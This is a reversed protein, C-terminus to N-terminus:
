SAIDFSIATLQSLDVKQSANHLDFNDQMILWSQPSRGIVKSIKLAMESSLDSKGNLLRNFTSPSVKLARAVENSGVKFPELYVRRIFEGPHIPKHQQLPQQLPQQVNKVNHEITM